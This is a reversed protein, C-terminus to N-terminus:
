YDKEVLVARVRTEREVAIILGSFEPKDHVVSM